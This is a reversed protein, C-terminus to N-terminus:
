SMYRHYQLFSIFLAMYIFLLLFVRFLPVLCGTIGLKIEILRFLKTVGYFIAFALLLYFGVTLILVLTSIM